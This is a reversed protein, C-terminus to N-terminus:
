YSCSLHHFTYCLSLMCNSGQQVIKFYTPWVLWELLVKLTIWDHGSNHEKLQPYRKELIDGFVKGFARSNEKIMEIIM